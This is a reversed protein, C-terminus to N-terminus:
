KTSIDKRVFTLKEDCKSKENFRSTVLLWISVLYYWIKTSNIKQQKLDFLSSSVSDEERKFFTIFFFEPQCNTNTIQSKTM